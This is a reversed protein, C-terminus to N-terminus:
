LKDKLPTIQYGQQTLQEILGQDGALHLAGVVVFVPKTQPEAVLLKVWANNRKVILSQYIAPYNKLDDLYLHDLQTLDGSRWAKRMADFDESSNKLDDMTSKILTEAGSNNLETIVDLHQQMTELGAIKKGSKKAEDQLFADVGPATAGQAQLQTTTLMIAAFAPKFRTIQELPIKHVRCYDALQKALPSSLHQLLNEGSPYSNLAIMQQIGSPSSLQELDTELVLTESLQLALLYEPPLPYDQSSLMHVSGALYFLQKGKSVKWVGDAIVTSSLLVLTFFLFIRTM